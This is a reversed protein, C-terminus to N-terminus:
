YLGIRNPLLVVRIGHTSFEKGTRVRVRMQNRMQNRPSSFLVASTVNAGMPVGEGFVLVGIPATAINAGFLDVVVPEVKDVFVIKAWVDLAVGLEDTCHPVSLPVDPHAVEPRAIPCRLDHLRLNQDSRKARKAHGRKRIDWPDIVVLSDLEVRCSPSVVDVQTVLSDGNEAETGRRRDENGEGREESV